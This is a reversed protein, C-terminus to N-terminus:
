FIPHESLHSQSAMPSNCQSCTMQMFNAFSIQQFFQMYGIGLGAFFVGIAVGDMRIPKGNHGDLSL